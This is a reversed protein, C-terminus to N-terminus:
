KDKFSEIKDIIMQTNDMSSFWLETAQAVAKHQNLVLETLSTIAQIIMEPGGEMQAIERIGEPGGKVVLAAGNLMLEVVENGTQLDQLLSMRKQYLEEDM